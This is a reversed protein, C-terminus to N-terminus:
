WQDRFYALEDIRRPLGKWMGLKQLGPSEKLGTAIPTQAKLFDEVEAAATGTKTTPATMSTSDLRNTIANELLM